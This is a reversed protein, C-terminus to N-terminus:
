YFIEKLYLGEAPLTPGALTRDKKKLISPIDEPTIKGIGCYFLTGALIRVMNYLFGNGTVEMDIVDGTKQVTLDYIEREFSKTQSGAASMATFDHVGMLSKSGQQMAALNIEAAYHYARNLYFPSAVRRNYIRYLYTKRKARFRSHFDGNREIACVVRIDQPLASNLAFPFKEAPIQVKTFFNASQRLAHVGADTRGAGIVTTKEGVISELAEELKQQISIGNIQRQWGCYASGDYEIIIQVNRM